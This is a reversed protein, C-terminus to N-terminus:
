FPLDEGTEDKASSANKKADRAELAKARKEQDIAKAGTLHGKNVFIYDVKRENGNSDVYRRINLWGDEIELTYVKESSLKAVKDAPFSKTSLVVDKYLRLYSGDEQKTTLNTKLLKVEKANAGKGFTKDEVFFNIEGTIKLM